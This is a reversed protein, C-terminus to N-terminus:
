SHAIHAASLAAPLLWLLLGLAMFFPWRNVASPSFYATVAAIGFCVVAFWYCFSTM